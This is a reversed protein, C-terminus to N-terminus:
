VFNDMAVISALTEDIGEKKDDVQLLGKAEKLESEKIADWKPTYVQKHYKKIRKLFENLKDSYYDEPDPEPMVERYDRPAPFLTELQHIIYKWFATNYSKNSSSNTFM